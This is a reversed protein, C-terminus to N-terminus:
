LNSTEDTEFNPKNDLIRQLVAQATEKNPNICWRRYPHKLSTCHLANKCTKFGIPCKNCQLEPHLRIFYHCYGCGAELKDLEPLEIILWSDNGNNAVICEWKKVSLKYAQKLTLKKM